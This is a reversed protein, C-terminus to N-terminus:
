EMTTGYCTRMYTHIYTHAHAHIPILLGRKFAGLNAGGRELCQPCPLMSERMEEKSVYVREQLAGPSENKPGQDVATEPTTRTETWEELFQHIQPMLEKRMKYEGM